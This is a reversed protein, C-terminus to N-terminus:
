LGAVILYHVNTYYVVLYSGAALFLLGAALRVPLGTVPRRFVRGIKSSLPLGATGAAAFGLALIVLERNSAFQERILWGGILLCAGLLVFAGLSLAWRVRTLGIPPLCVAAALMAALCCWSAVALYGRRINRRARALQVRLEGARAPDKSLAEEFVAAAKRYRGADYWAEGMELWADRAVASGPYRQLLGRYLAVARPTDVRRYQNALWYQMTPAIRSGPYAALIAAVKELCAQRAAPDNETRRYAVRRIREFRALPAFDHDDHERLYALRRSAAPVLPSDPHQEILRRYWRIAERYRFLKQDLIDAVAYYADDIQYHGAHKAIFERYAAISEEYAGRDALQRCERCTRKRKLTPSRLVVDRRDQGPFVLRSFDPGIDVRAAIAGDPPLSVRSIGGEMVGSRDSVAIVFSIRQEPHGDNWSSIRDTIGEMGSPCFLGITHQAAGRLFPALPEDPDNVIVLRLGGWAIVTGGERPAGGRSRGRLYPSDVGWRDFVPCYPRAADIGPNEGAAVIFDPMESALLSRIERAGAGRLFLFSFPSAPLPATRFEMWPGPRDPLRYRYLTGPELGPLVVEHITGVTRDDAIRPAGREGAPLYAVRGPSPSASEWAITAEADTVDLVEVRPVAAASPGGGVVFLVAAVVIAAAIAALACYTKTRTKM